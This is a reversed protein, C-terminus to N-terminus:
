YRVYVIEKMNTTPKNTRSRRNPEKTSNYLYFIIAGYIKHIKIRNKTEGQHTIRLFSFSLAAHCWVVFHERKRERKGMTTKIKWYIKVSSTISSSIGYNFLTKARVYISCTAKKRYKVATIYQCRSQIKKNNIDTNKPRNAMWQSQMSEIWLM